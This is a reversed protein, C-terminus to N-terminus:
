MFLYFSFFRLLSFMVKKRPPAKGTAAPRKPKETPAKKVKSRLKPM